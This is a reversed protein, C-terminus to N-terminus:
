SGTGYHKRLLMLIADSVNGKEIAKELGLQDKILTKSLKKFEELEEESYYLITTTISTDDQESVNQGYDPDFLEGTM